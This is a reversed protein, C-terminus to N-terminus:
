PLLGAEVPREAQTLIRPGDETIAVTHEFHASLSSDATSISWEDDHLVVEAGGANIMPEIAFTMGESLLPGRGPEGFNPIQPEEHMSRGVGHGVLSRVVSFGHEETVRQIAHSIDSLRNGVRCQDIGAALAAQCGELLREAEPSVEGIPFTYASDAVFGDLTVGVDVSLLDGERLTYLGPIGHVVMDNPSTCISAPYGRYGKFTAVGGRSRIFEEALEDLEQTSIGPRAREGILALTDAVVAGARAMREIEAPAKRIIM